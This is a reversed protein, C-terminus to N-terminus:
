TERREVGGGEHGVRQEEINQKRDAFASLRSWKENKTSNLQAVIVEAWTRM